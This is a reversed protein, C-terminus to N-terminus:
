QSTAGNISQNIETLKFKSDNKVSKTQTQLKLLFKLTVDLHFSKHSFIISNITMLIVGEFSAQNALETLAKKTAVDPISVIDRNTEKSISAKLSTV